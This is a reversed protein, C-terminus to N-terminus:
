VSRVPQSTEGAMSRAVLTSRRCTVAQVAFSCLTEQGAKNREAFLFALIEVRICHGDTTIAAYLFAGDGSARPRPTTRGVPFTEETEDRGTPLLDLPCVAGLLDPEGQGM